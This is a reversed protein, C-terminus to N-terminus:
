PLHKKSIGTRAPFGERRNVIVYRWYWTSVPVCYDRKVRYWLRCAIWAPVARNSGGFCNYQGQFQKTVRYIFWQQM